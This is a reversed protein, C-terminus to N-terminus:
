DVLEEPLIGFPVNLNWLFWCFVLSHSYVNVRSYYCSAFFLVLVIALYVSVFELIVM